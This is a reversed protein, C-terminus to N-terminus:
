EFDMAFYLNGLTIWDQMVKEGKTYINIERGNSMGFGIRYPGKAVNLFYGIEITPQFVLIQSKGSRSVIKTDPKYDKWKIGMYWLDTRLGAFFGLREQEMFYYRSGLSLGPGGGKENDHFDSFDKRNTSNYGLRFHHYFNSKSGYEFTLGLIKGAPYGQLEWYGSKLQLQAACSTSIGAFVLFMIFPRRM